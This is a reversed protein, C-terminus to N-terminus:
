EPKESIVTFAPQGLAAVHLKQRAFDVALAYPAASIPQTSIVKNTNGDLVSINHSLTNAIYVRNHDCDVAVAQPRNGVPINAVVKANAADIVAITNRAYDAVYITDTQSNIAIACPIGGTHIFTPLTSGPALVAIAGDGIKSVYLVGTVPNLAMGWAHMGVSTRTIKRTAGDVIALDGMEYSLLYITHTKENVAVLDPSGAKISSVQNTAADIIILRDSYTRTVYIKGALSDAAISYPHAGIKLTALVADTRGDLVSLTGEGANVVYVRGNVTDIAISTPNAGVKALRVTGDRDNSIHVVGAHSDVVYGKGTAANFAAGATNILGTRPADPTVLAFATPAAMLPLTTVCLIVRLRLSITTAAISSIRTLYEM